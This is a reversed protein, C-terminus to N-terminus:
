LSVFTKDWPNALYSFILIILTWVWMLNTEEVDQDARSTPFNQVYKDNAPKSEGLDLKLNYPVIPKSKEVIKKQDQNPGWNGLDVHQNNQHPWNEVDNNVPRSQLSDPQLIRNQNTM